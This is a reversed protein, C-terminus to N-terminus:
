GGETGTVMRKFKEHPHGLVNRKEIGRKHGCFGVQGGGAWTTQKAQEHNDGTTSARTGKKEKRIGWRDKKLNDIGVGYEGACEIKEVRGKKKERPSKKCGDKHTKEERDRPMETLKSREDRCAGKFRIKQSVDRTSPGL